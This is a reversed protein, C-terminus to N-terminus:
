EDPTLLFIVIKQDVTIPQENTKDSPKTQLYSELLEKLKDDNLNYKGELEEVKRKLKRLKKSLDDAGSDNKKSLKRIELEMRKALDEGGGDSMRSYFEEKDLKTDIGQEFVEKDVKFSMETQVMTLVGIM